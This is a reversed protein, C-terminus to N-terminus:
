CIAVMLHSFGYKYNPGSCDYRRNKYIFPKGNNLKKFVEAQNNTILITGKSFSNLFIETWKNLENFEKCNKLSQENELKALFKTLIRVSKNLQDFDEDSILEDDLISDMKEIAAKVDEIKM